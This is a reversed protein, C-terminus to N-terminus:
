DEHFAPDLGVINEFSLNLEYRKIYEEEDVGVPMSRTIIVENEGDSISHTLLGESNSILTITRM